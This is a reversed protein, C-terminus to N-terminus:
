ALPQEPHSTQHLQRAQEQWQDKTVRNKFALLEGIALADEPSWQAIQRYSHIGHANLQANLITKIGKIRTLDDAVPHETAVALTRALAAQQRRYRALGETAQALRHSADKARKTAAKLAVKDVPQAQALADKEAQAEASERTLPALQQELASAQEVLHEAAQHAPQLDIPRAEPVPEKPLAAAPFTSFAKVSESNSSTAETSTASSVLPLKQERLAQLEETLRRVERAREHAVREAEDRQELAALCQKESAELAAALSAMEKEQPSPASVEPVPEASPLEIPPEAVVRVRHGRWLWGVAFALASAILVLLAIRSSLLLLEPNM